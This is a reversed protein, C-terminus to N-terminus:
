CKCPQMTIILHCWMHMDSDTGGPEIYLTLFTMLFTLDRQPPPPLCRLFPDSIEIILNQWLWVVVSHVLLKWALKMDIIEHWYNWTMYSYAKLYVFFSNRTGMGLVITPRRRRRFTYSSSYNQFGAITDIIEFNVPVNDRWIMHVCIM